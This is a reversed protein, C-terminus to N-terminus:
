WALLDVQETHMLALIQERKEEVTNREIRQLRKIDAEQLSNQASLMSFWGLFGQQGRELLQSQEMLGQSRHLSSMIVNTCAQRRQCLEDLDRQKSGLQTCTSRYFSELPKHVETSLATALDILAVSVSRLSALLCQAIHQALPDEHDVLSATDAAADCLGSSMVHQLGSGAASLSEVAAGAASSLRHCLRLSREATAQVAEVDMDPTFPSQASLHEPFVQESM